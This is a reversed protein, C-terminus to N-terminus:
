RARRAYMQGYATVPGTNFNFGAVLYTTTTGSLSFRRAPIPLCITPNAASPIQFLTINEFGSPLTASTSSSGIAVSTILAGGTGAACAAGNVEWDGATLSISTVNATVTNTMSIASGVPLDAAIVEGVKGAAANDNTITGPLQGVAASCNATGNSLDACGAQSVVGSGNAKLAGNITGAGGKNAPVVNNYSTANGVSTVDGNLNANTSVNGATLGAATGTLNTAVGSAPTGLIPAVFTQQGAWTHATSFVDANLMASTVKTAGIALALSGASNTVDGTHAPEQAAQLAGTLLTTAISGSSPTGLPGGNYVVTGGGGFAVTSGDTATFTVTNNVTLTKGALLTLTALSAPNTVAVNSCAPGAAGGIVARPSPCNAALMDILSPKTTLPQAHAFTLGAVTLAAAARIIQLIPKM